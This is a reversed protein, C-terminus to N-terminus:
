GKSLRAIAENVSDALAFNRGALKKQLARYKELAELRKGSLEVLATSIFDRMLMQMEEDRGDKKLNDLWLYTQWADEQPLASLSEVLEKHHTFPPECCDSLIYHKKGDDLPENGKRMENAVRMMEAHAGKAHDDDLLGSIQMMRVYPRLKGTAVATQFHGAAEAFDKRNQMMWNGLMANAYVNNPDTALAARFDNEAAPGYEREAIHWNLWHAWGLHAQVDAARSGKSRALGADLVAMMQDLLPGATDAADKGERGLVQFNEGWAMAADVQGDLAPANLPDAKLIVGYSEVAAQYEGQRVQGEAVAMQAKRQAQEARHTVIWHFGGALSAFLGILATAWGIWTMIRKMPSSDPPDTEVKRGEMGM